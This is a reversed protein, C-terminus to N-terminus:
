FNFYLFPNNESIALYYMSLFFIVAVAIMGAV